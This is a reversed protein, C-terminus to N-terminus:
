RAFAQSADEEEDEDADRDPKEPPAHAAHRVLRGHRRAVGRAALVHDRARAAAHVKRAALRALFAPAEDAAVVRAADGARSGRAMLLAGSLTARGPARKPRAIGKM